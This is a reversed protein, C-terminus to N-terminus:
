GCCCTVVKEVSKDAGCITVEEIADCTAVLSCSEHVVGGSGVSGGGGCMHTIQLWGSVLVLGSQMKGGFRRIWANQPM